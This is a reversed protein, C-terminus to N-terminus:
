EMGKQAIRIHLHHANFGTSASIRQALVRRTKRTGASKASGPGAHQLSRVSVDKLRLVALDRCRM